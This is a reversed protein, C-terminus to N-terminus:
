IWDDDLLKEMKKNLTKGRKLLSLFEDLKSDDNWIEQIRENVLRNKERLKYFDTSRQIKTLTNFLKKNLILFPYYEFLKLWSEKDFHKFDDATLKEEPPKDPSFSEFYKADPGCFSLLARNNKASSTFGIKSILEENLCLNNVCYRCSRCEINSM